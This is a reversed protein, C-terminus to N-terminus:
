RVQGEGLVVFKTTTLERVGMPGRAHLKQTSIGIEAGLGLEGGDNFRTSANVLVCSADVERLFRLAKGYERTVIAESHGSGYQAIHELAAEFSPVVRVALTLALYEAAWDEETAEGMEPVLRRSEPCGRLEVGAAQLKQAIRPLFVPAVAAHVLLTELANCVGPRSCKANVAIAEAQALDADEDVYVHCVGRGHRFLPVTAGALGAMLSEGGRAIIVDVLRDLRGLITVAARDTTPVLQVAERPLGAEALAEQLLGAIVTNSRHAESGGRLICANGAKLCLGAAEATVNPRAEYVMGVVGLPVRMRGVQLGNPRRVLHEIEGVPDPLAAVERLSQVVGALRAPNLTLRDLLAESLGARRAAKVDDGNAALIEGEASVLRDAMAWLAKNKLPGPAKALAQAAKRAAEALGTVERELAEHDM